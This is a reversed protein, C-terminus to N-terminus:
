EAKKKYREKKELLRLQEAPKPKLVPLPIVPKEKKGAQSHNKYTEWEPFYEEAQNGWCEWNPRSGRAFFSWSHDEAAAKL